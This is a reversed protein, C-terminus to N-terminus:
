AKDSMARVSQVLAQQLQLLSEPMDVSCFCQTEVYAHQLASWVKKNFSTPPTEAYCDIKTAVLFVALGDYYLGKVADIVAETSCDNQDYLYLLIKAKRVKEKARQIGIAEIADSTDRLGATDIFRFSYGELVITDEVTDRTTGPLDSVIARDENLLANLLSSKGANPKGAIVVPIGSKVVNGYAFSAILRELNEQLTELVTTFAARDAFSVDEEAFDLELELLATFDILKSRLDDLTDSFGGRMQQLALRHAAESESAILDAVAEAQSLDMKKNLYARLTFEGGAAPAVGLTFLHQLITQQIYPSGHCAIEVVDEGTYSAPAAYLTVVVEDVVTDDWVFDGFYARRPILKDGTEASRAKFVQNLISFSDPGTLRILAIAGMGPATSLAAITGDTLM